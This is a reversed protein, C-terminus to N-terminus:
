KCEVPVVNNNSDLTLEKAKGTLKEVKYLQVGDIQVKEKLFRLFVKELKDQDFSNDDNQIKALQKLYWENWSSIVNPGVPVVSLFGTYQLIYNGESTIVMAYADGISGGSNANTVCSTLFTALDYPSFIKVAGEKNNHSHMFVFYQNGDPLRVSHSGLVNEMPPYQTGAVGTNAPPYGAAFGMEHDYNFVEAKDIAAVKEKFKTESFRNKIKKCPDDIDINSWKGPM